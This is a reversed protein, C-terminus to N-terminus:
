HTIIYLCSSYRFAREALRIDDSLDNVIKENNSLIAIICDVAEKIYKAQYKIEPIKKEFLFKQNVANQKCITILLVYASKVASLKLKLYSSYNFNQANAAEQVITAFKFSLRAM